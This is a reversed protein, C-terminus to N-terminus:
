KGMCFRSFIAGYVDEIDTAGTIRGLEGAADALMQATLEPPCTTADIADLVSLCRRLHDVHRSAVPVDCDTTTGEAAHRALRETLATLGAGTKASVTLSEFEDETRSLDSKTGIRIMPIDDLGSPMDTRDEDVPDLWLVLGARQVASHTREIGAREIPDDTSRLGATDTLVVKYGGCDLSVEITDRTTGPIPTVIAIDRDALANLLSSKGANPPGALVVRLGNRVIEGDDARALHHRITGAISAVTTGVEDTMDTPADDEDSFDISAEMAARAELLADAWTRYLTVNRRGRDSAAFARQAETEADILDALREAEVLDIRGNRFARLTFEGPEALRLGPLTGLHRQVAAVVARGGHLHLELVDEGTFSRPAGFHIALADDLREGRADRLRVLTSRRDPLKRGIWREILEPVAPGSIRLVTVGAPLAGSAIAHITDLVDDSM